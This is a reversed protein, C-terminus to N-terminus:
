VADSLIERKQTIKGQSSEAIFYDAIDFVNSNSEIYSYEEIIVADV